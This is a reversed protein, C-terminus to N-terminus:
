MEKLKLRMLYRPTLSDGILYKIFHHYLRLLVLKINEINNFDKLLIEYHDPNKKNLFQKNFRLSFVLSTDYEYMGIEFVLSKLHHKEQFTAM